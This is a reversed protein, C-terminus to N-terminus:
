SSMSALVDALSPGWRELVRQHDRHVVEATTAGPVVVWTQPLVYARAVAWASPAGILVADADRLVTAQHEDPVVPTTEYCAVRLVEIGRGALEDFLEDRMAAAGLALVPGADIQDALDIARSAAAGAVDVGLEVLARSTAPGVSFVPASAGLAAHVVEEYRASRASTVVLAAFAGYHPSDLTASRVDDSDFYNTVTLPVEHVVAGIPLWTRAEANMGAERTLVVNM